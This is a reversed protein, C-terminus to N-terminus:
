RADEARILDTKDGIDAARADIDEDFLRGPGALRHLNNREHAHVQAPPKSMRHNRRRLLLNFMAEYMTVIFLDAKRRNRRHGRRIHAHRISQNPSRTDTLKARHLAHESIKALRPRQIM